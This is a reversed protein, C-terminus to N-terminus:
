VFQKKCPYITVVESPWRRGCKECITTNCVIKVTKTESFGGRRNPFVGAKSTFTYYYLFRPGQEESIKLGSPLLESVKSFLSQPPMSKKFM